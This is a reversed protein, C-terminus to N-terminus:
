RRSRVLLGRSRVVITDRSVVGYFITQCCEWMPKGKNLAHRCPHGLLFHFLSMPSPDYSYYWSHLKLHSISLSTVPNIIDLPNLYAENRFVRFFPSGIPFLHWVTMYPTAGFYVTIVHDRPNKALRLLYTSMPTKMKQSDLFLFFVGTHARKRQYDGTGSFLYFYVYYLEGM